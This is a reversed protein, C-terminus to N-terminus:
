EGLFVMLIKGIIGAFLISSSNMVVPVLVGIKVGMEKGIAVINAFCPTFMTTLIVVEICQVYTLAGRNVMGLLLGAAAEQRVMTLILVDVTDLPLGLWGIVIPRVAKKLLGLIGSADVAFLVVSAILFIPVAEKLFWFLRYYTKQALAQINPKRIPPLEQIFDSTGTDPIIRNLVIGVLIEFFALMGFAIVFARVGMRGLIAMDLAFQPACPIAFAILYIAIFKEKRSTIGRTMLTAMTKCGFGLILPMISKGSLGAKELVKKALISMNPIYGIDELFGFILFYLGLVPLVTVFANFLGLTLIGYHGVLFDKILGDAFLRSVLNVVPDVILATLADAVAGAGYVVLVYTLALFFTLIPIGWVPHRSLAAFLEPVNRQPVHKQALMRGSITDVFAYLDSMMARGINGKFALREKEALATLSRARDAGAMRELVRPFTQDRSLLLMAATRASKVQPPIESRLTEISREIDPGHSLRRRGVRAACIAERLAARPRADLDAISIIAMDLSQSLGAADVVTGSRWAEDVANLCMVMPIELGLLDVTLALSQKLRAADVCQVIVDPPKEFLLDRVATEEESHIYLSHIAPTDIVTWQEAGVACGQTSIEVTTNPYNAVVGYGGTLMNFVHTKGTNPLGVIIVRKM